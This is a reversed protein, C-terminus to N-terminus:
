NINTDQLWGRKIMTNREDLSAANQTIVQGMILPNLIKVSPNLDAPLANLSSAIDAMEM